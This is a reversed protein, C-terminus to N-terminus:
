IKVDSIRMKLGTVAQLGDHEDKRAAAADQRGPQEPAFKTFHPGYLHYSDLRELDKKQAADLINNLVGEVETQARSDNSGPVTSCGGLLVLCVCAVQLKKSRKM